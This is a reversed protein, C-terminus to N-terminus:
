AEHGPDIARARLFTFPREGPEHAGAFPAVVFARHDGADISHLIRAAFWSRCRRLVPLREPGPKWPVSAFKDAEDGTQGGFLAALEGADEPVLHVIMGTARQLVRYTRNRVSICVVFRLPDISCQTAFGVLCGAREEGVATTVIFMPHDLESALEHVAEIAM